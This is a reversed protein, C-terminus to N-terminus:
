DMGSVGGEKKTIYIQYKEQDLDKLDELRRKVRMPNTNCVKAIQRLSYDEHIFLSYYLMCEKIKELDIIM